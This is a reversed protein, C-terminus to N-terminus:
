LGRMEFCTLFNGYDFCYPVPIFVLLTFYLDWFYIRVYLTLLDTLSGLSCTSFPLLRKALYHQPFHTEVHLLICNSGERVNSVFVLDFPLVSKNGSFIFSRFSFIPLFVGLMVNSPSKESMIGFALSSWYIELATSSIM